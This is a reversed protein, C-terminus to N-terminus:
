NFKFTGVIRDLVNTLKSADFPKLQYEAPYNMIQSSHITYEVVWCQQGGGRLFRYSTTEYYNGAGADAFHFVTFPINDILLTSTVSRGDTMEPVLCEAVAKANGSMGVSLTADSFNTQPEFVKPITLTFMKYGPGGPMGVRWDDVPTVSYNGNTEFDIPYAISWGGTNRDTDQNTQWTSVEEYYSNVSPVASAAVSRSNQLEMFGDDVRQRLEGYQVGIWLGGFSLVIFLALALAKSYWTVKNWEIKM